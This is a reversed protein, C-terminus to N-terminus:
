LPNVAIMTGAKTAKVKISNYNENKKDIIEFASTDLEIVTVKNAAATVTIDNLASVGDGAYITLTSDAASPIFALIVQRGYAEIYKTSGDTFAVPTETVATNSKLLHVSNSVSRAM